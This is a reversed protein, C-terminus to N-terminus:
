RHLEEGGPGRLVPPETRQATEEHVVGSPEVVLVGREPEVWEPEERRTRPLLAAMAAGLALGAGALVLPNDRLVQRSRSGFERLREGTSPGTNDDSRMAQMRQRAQTGTASAREKVADLRRRVSGVAEGLRGGGAEEHGATGNGRERSAIMTWLLGIATFTIPLPNRNISERLNRVYVTGPGERLYDLGMELLESPALRAQLQSLTSDMEARTRELEAEIHTLDGDGEIRRESVQRNM